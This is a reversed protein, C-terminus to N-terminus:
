GAKGQDAVARIAAELEAPDGLYDNRIPKLGADLEYVLPRGTPINLDIIKKEDLDDLYKV